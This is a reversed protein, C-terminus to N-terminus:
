MHAIQAHFNYSRPIYGVYSVWCQWIGGICLYHLSSLAHLTQRFDLENGYMKISYLYHQNNLCVEVKNLSSYKCLTAITKLQRLQYKSFVYSNRLLKSIYFSFLFGSIYVAWFLVAWMGVCGFIINNNNPKYQVDEEEEQQEELGNL